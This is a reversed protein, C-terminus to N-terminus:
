KLIKNININRNYSKISPAEVDGDISIYEIETLYIPESLKIDDNIVEQIQYGYKSNQYKEIINKLTNSDINISEKISNTVSVSYRFLSKLSDLFREQDYESNDHLKANKYNESTSWFSDCKYLKTGDKLEVFYIARQTKDKNKM